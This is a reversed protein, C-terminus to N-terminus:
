RNNLDRLKIETILKKTFIPFDGKMMWDYYSPERRFAEAVPTNKYKGFNFCEVGESNFVIRGAMDAIRSAGVEHLKAMDNTIPEFEEGKDNKIFVGQYKDLQGKVVEYTAYTDAEASHADTLEKGCYYKLAGALTRPEMLYFLKQADVINIGKISFDKGVRYIEEALVPIDFQILNYGGLDCGKIFELYETVKDAFTPCDKVDKDYIGHILSSEYPIAITPNLRDTIVIEEGDPMVKLMSIEIIRDHSVNIGTTELDFFVIPRKLNLKM